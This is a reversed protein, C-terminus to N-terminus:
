CSLYASATPSRRHYLHIVVILPLAALGLLGWPNAFYM